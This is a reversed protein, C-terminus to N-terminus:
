NPASRVARSPRTVGRANDWLDTTLDFSNVYNGSTASPFGSFPLAVGSNGTTSACCHIHAATAAGGTLGSFTVDVDLTTNHERLDGDRLRHGAPDPGWWELESSLDIDRKCSATSLM